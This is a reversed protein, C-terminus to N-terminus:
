SAGHQKPAAPAWVVHWSVAESKLPALPAKDIEWRHCIVLLSEVTAPDVPWTLELHLQCGRGRVGAYAPLAALWSFFQEEDQQAFFVPGDLVIEISDRM